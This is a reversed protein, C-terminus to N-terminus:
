QASAAAQLLQLQKEALLPRFQGLEVANNGQEHKRFLLLYTENQPRHMDFFLRESEIALAILQEEKARSQVNATPLMAEAVGASWTRYSSANLYTGAEFFSTRVAPLEIVPLQEAAAVASLMNVLAPRRKAYAECMSQYTPRAATGEIDDALQPPLCLLSRRGQSRVAGILERLESEYIKLRAEDMSADLLESMGYAIAVLSAGSLAIDNLRRAKGDTETGFVARARGTFDDGSWGLNVFTLGSLPARLLLETELAGAPAAREILTGGLWVIRDGPHLWNPLAQKASDVVSQEVDGLYNVTVFYAGRTKGDAAVLETTLKTVGAPLRLTLPVQVASPEVDVSIKLEGVQVSAKVSDIPVPSELPRRSLLFQYTGPRQVEVAWFGNTFPDKEILQQAFVPEPGHWDHATLRVRPAAPAGLVIHSYQQSDVQMDNWWAHYDALLGKFVGANEAIPLPTTQAPDTEINYLDKGDVLRWKGRMVVSKRLQVPEEVRHSQVV